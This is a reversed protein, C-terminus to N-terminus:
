NREKGRGERNASQDITHVREDLTSDIHVALEKTGDVVKRRAPKNFGIEIVLPRNRSSFILRICIRSQAFFIM